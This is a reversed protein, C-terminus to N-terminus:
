SRHLRKSAAVIDKSTGFEYFNNYSSALDEDTVPRDLTYTENRKAPYLDLTPDAGQAAATGPLAAGAILGAGGTMFARRNFFVAEPTAESEPIDWSPRNKILM